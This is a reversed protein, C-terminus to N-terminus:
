FERLAHVRYLEVQEDDGRSQEERELENTYVNKLFEFRAHAGRTRDIEAMVDAPDIGFLRSDDRTGQRQYDEWSRSTEGRVPLHLFCLVDDLTISMEGLPLHFPSTESHWREVFACLMGYNVAIYSTM